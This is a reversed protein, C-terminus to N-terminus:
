IKGSTPHSLEPSLWKESRCPVLSELIAYRPSWQPYQLWRCTTPCSQGRALGHRDVLTGTLTRQTDDELMKLGALISHQPTRSMAAPAPNTLTEDFFTAWTANRPKTQSSVCSFTVKPPLLRGEHNEVPFIVREMKM